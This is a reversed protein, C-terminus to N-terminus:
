VCYWFLFANKLSQNICMQLKTTWAQRQQLIRHRFIGRYFRFRRRLTSHPTQKRVVRPKEDAANLAFLYRLHMTEELLVMLYCPSVFTEAISISTFQTNKYDQQYYKCPAVNVYNPGVTHSIKTNSVRCMTCLSIYMTLHQWSWFTKLDWLDCSTAACLM